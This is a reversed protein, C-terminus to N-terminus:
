WGRPALLHLYGHTEVWPDIHFPLLKDRLSLQIEGFAEHTAGRRPHLWDEVTPQLGRSGDDHREAIRRPRYM